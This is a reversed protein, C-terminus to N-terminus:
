ATHAQSNLVGYLPFLTHTTPPQLTPSTNGSDSRLGSKEVVVALFMVWHGKSGAQAAISATKQDCLVTHSQSSPTTNSIPVGAECASDSPPLLGKLCRICFIVCFQVIFM